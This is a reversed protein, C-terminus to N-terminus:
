DWLICSNGAGRRSHEFMVPIRELEIFFDCDPGTTAGLKPALRMSYKDARSNTM